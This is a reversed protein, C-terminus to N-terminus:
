RSCYVFVPILSKRIDRLFRFKFPNEWFKDSVYPQIPSEPARKEVGGGSSPVTQQSKPERM